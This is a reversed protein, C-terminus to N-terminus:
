HRARHPDRRHRPPHDPESAPSAGMWVFVMGQSEAVPYRRHCPGIELRMGDHFFQERNRWIEPPLLPDVLKM